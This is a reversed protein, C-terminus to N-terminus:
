TALTQQTLVLSDAGTAPDHYCLRLYALAASSARLVVLCAQLHPHLPGHASKTSHKALLGHSM